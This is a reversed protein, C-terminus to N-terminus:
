AAAVRSVPALDDAAAARMQDALGLAVEAAGTEAEGDLPLTAEVMRPRGEIVIGEPESRVSAVMGVERAVLGAFFPQIAHADIVGHEPAGALLAAIGPPVRAYNGKAVIRIAAEDGQGEVDVTM